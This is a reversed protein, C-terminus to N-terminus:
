AEISTRNTWLIKETSSFQQTCNNCGYKRSIYTGKDVYKIVVIRDSGCKPCKM